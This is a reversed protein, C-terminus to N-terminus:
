LFIYLYGEWEGWEWKKWIVFVNMYLSHKQDKVILTDDSLFFKSM